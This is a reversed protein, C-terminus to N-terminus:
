GQTLLCLLPLSENWGFCRVQQLQLSLLPLPIAVELVAYMVFAAGVVKSDIMLKYLPQQLRMRELDGQDELILVTYLCSIISLKLSPPDLPNRQIICIMYNLFWDVSRRFKNCFRTVVRGLLVRECQSSQCAFSQMLM